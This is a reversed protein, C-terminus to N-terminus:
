SLLLALPSVTQGRIELHCKGLLYALSAGGGSPFLIAFLMFEAPVSLLIQIRLAPTYLPTVQFHSPLCCLGLTHAISRYQNAFPLLKSLLAVGM